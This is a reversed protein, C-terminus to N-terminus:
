VPKSPGVPHQRPLAGYYKTDSPYICKRKKDLMCFTGFLEGTPWTLPLGCYAIMGLPIDPNHAWNPDKLANPVLLKKQTSMVTECYLGTDLSAKEGPHYVNGPSHSAVFVEIEHKHVRMILASPIGAMEALLDLTVQWNEFVNKPVEIEDLILYKSPNLKDSM